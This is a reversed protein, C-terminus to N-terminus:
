SSEGANYRMEAYKSDFGIREYLRKAPNDYEVHLKVNGSCRSLAERVLWGGIGGGRREPRVGVFVLVHEPIYGAMGTDLIVISGVVQEQEAAVLIFGGMGEQPSLAYRLAHKIDPITDEYPKMNVHLFQSLVDLGLWDPLEDAARIEYLKLSAM